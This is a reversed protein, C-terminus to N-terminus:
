ANTPATSRAFSEGLRAAFARKMDAKESAIGLGLGAMARPEPQPQLLLNAASM